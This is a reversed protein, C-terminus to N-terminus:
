QQWDWSPYLPIVEQIPLRALYPVPTDRVDEDNSM